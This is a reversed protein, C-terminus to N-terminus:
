ASPIRAKPGESSTSPSTSSPLSIPPPTIPESMPMAPVASQDFRWFAIHRSDPSWRFADRLGLEEEYVWDTTGNIINESGDRTLRQERGNALDTVYLDNDRVFAVQKGDPSWIGQQGSGNTMNQEPADDTAKALTYNLSFQIGRSYRKTLQLTM